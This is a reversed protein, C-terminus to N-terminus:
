KKIFTGVACTLIYFPILFIIGKVGVFILTCIILIIYVYLLRNEKWKFTSLKLSFMPLDSVLLLSLIVVCAILIWVNSFFYGYFDPYYLKTFVLSVWFLAHAPVPLGRFSVSQRTDLNFKALRCASLAPILLVSFALAQSSDRILFYALIAPAFGFTLMDALSDLQKGFESKVHLLRAVFGDFFDFFMGLVICGAAYEIKGDLSMIVSMSGSVVNLTTIFNPIHKKM